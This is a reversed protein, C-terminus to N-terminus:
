RDAQEDSRVHRQPGRVRAPEPVGQRRLGRVPGQARQPLHSHAWWASSQLRRGSPTTPVGSTRSSTVWCGRGWCVAMFQERGFQREVVPGLNNLSMCNVMLHLPSGATAAPHAAEVGRGARDQREGQRWGRHVRSWKAAAARVRWGHSLPARRHARPQSGRLNLIQRRVTSEPAPAPRLIADIRWARPGLDGLDRAGPQPVADRRHKARDGDGFALAWHARGLRDRAVIRTSPRKEAHRGRREVFASALGPTWRGGGRGGRREVVGDHSRYARRGDPRDPHQAADAGISGVRFIIIENDSPRVRKIPQSVTVLDTGLTVTQQKLLTFVTLSANNELRTRSAARHRARQM